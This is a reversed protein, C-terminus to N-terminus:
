GTPVNEGGIILASEGEGLGLVQSEVGRDILVRERRAVSTIRWTVSVAAWLDVGHLNKKHFVTTTSFLKQGARVPRTKAVLPFRITVSHGGLNSSQKRTIGQLIVM